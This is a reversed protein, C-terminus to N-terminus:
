RAGIHAFASLRRDELDFRAPQLEMRGFTPLARDALFALQDRNAV